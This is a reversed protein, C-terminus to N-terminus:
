SDDCLGDVVGSSSRVVLKLSECDDVNSLEVIFFNVLVRGVFPVLVVVLTVVVLVVSDSVVVVLSFDVVRVVVVPALVVVACISEAAPDKLKVVEVSCCFRADDVSLAVEVSFGVVVIASFGVVVVRFDVVLSVM